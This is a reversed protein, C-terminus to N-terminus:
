TGEELMKNLRVHNGGMSSKPDLVRLLELPKLVVHSQTSPGIVENVTKISAVIAGAPVALVAFTADDVNDPVARCKLVQSNAKVRQKEFESVRIDRIMEQKADGRHKLAVQVKSEEASAVEILNSGISRVWQVKRVAHGGFSLLKDARVRVKRFDEVGSLKQAVEPLTVLGNVNVHGGLTALLGRMVDVNPTIAADNVWAGLPVKGRSPDPMGISAKEVHREIVGLHANAVKIGIAVYTMRANLEKTAQDAGLGVGGSSLKCSANESDTSIARSVITSIRLGELKLGSVQKLVIAEPHAGPARERQVLISVHPLHKAKGDNSFAGLRDLDGPPSSMCLLVMDLSTFSIHVRLQVVRNSVSDCVLTLIDPMGRPEPLKGLMVHLLLSGDGFKECANMVKHDESERCLFDFPLIIVSEGVEGGLLGMAAGGSGGVEKGSSAQDRVEENASRNLQARGLGQLTVGCLFDGQKKVHPQEQLVRVPLRYGEPSIARGPQFDKGSELAESALGRRMFEM